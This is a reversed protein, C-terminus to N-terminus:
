NRKTLQRLDNMLELKGRLKEVELLNGKSAWDNIDQMTSVILDGLLQNFVTRSIDGEGRGIKIAMKAMVTQTQTQKM